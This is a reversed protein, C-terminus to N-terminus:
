PLRLAGQAHRQRRPGDPRESVQQVDHAMLAASLRLLDDPKTFEVSLIQEIRRLRLNVTNPHIFLARATPETRCSNDLYTRLTEVLHSRRAEDAEQLPGITARAFRAIADSDDLQLLLQYIGLSELMIVASSSRAALGAAGRSVRYAERYDAAALCRQGVVAVLEGPKVLRELTRGPGQDSQADAPDPWLLVLDGRYRAALVDPRQVGLHRHILELESPHGSPPEVRPRVVVVRHAVTTAFGARRARQVGDGVRVPDDSVLDAILDMRLRAEVERATREQLLLLACVTAAHELARRHLDALRPQEEIWIRAVVTGDLLVPATFLGDAPAVPSAPLPGDSATRIPGADTPQERAINWRSAFDHQGAPPDPVRLPDIADPAAALLEGNHDQIIVRGGDLAVSLAGALAPVGLSSLAVETLGHHITEAQELERQREQLAHHAAELERLRALNSTRLHATQLAAGAYNALAQVIRVTHEDRPVPARSYCNLTGSLQDGIHLPTSVMTRYGQEHAPGAWPTFAPDAQIDDVWITMGTGFARSSPSEAAGATRGLRLPSEANVRRVYDENLGSFGEIVLQSTDHEALLVACFDFNTLQRTVGALHDLLTAPTASRNAEEALRFLADVWV